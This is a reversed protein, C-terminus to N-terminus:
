TLNKIYVKEQIEYGNRLWLEDTGRSGKYVWSTGVVSMAGCLKAYNEATEILTKVINLKGRQKPSVYILTIHAMLGFTSVGPFHSMILCSKPEELNDVYAAMYRMDYGRQLSALCEEVSSRGVLNSEVIRKEIMGKLIDLKSEPVPYLRFESM